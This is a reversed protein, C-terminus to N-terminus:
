GMMEQYQAKLRKTLLEKQKPKLNFIKDFKEVIRDINDGEHISIRVVSCTYMLNM